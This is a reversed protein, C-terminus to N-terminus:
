VKHTSRSANYKPRRAQYRIDKGLRDCLNSTFIAWPKQKALACAHRHITAESLAVNDAKGKKTPGERIFKRYKTKPSSGYAMYDMCRKM